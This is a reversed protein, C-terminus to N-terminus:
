NYLIIRLKNYTWMNTHGRCESYEIIYSYKVSIRMVRCLFYEVYLFVEGNKRLWLQRKMYKRCYCDCCATKMLFRVSYLNSSLLVDSSCKTTWCYISQLLYWLVVPLGVLIYTSLTTRCIMCQIYSDDTVYLLVTSTRCIYIFRHRVFVCNIYIGVYFVHGERFM